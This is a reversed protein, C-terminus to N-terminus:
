IPVKPPNGFGGALPELSRLESEGSAIL